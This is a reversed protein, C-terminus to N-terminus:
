GRENEVREAEKLADRHLHKIRDHSYGMVEAVDDLTRPRGDPIYYLLLIQRYKSEAIGAIVQLAGQQHDVLAIIRREILRDLEDIKAVTDAMHDGPEPEQVQVTKYKMARPILSAHLYERKDQLIAIEKSEHRLEYLTKRIM